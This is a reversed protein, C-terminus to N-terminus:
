NRGSERMAGGLISTLNNSDCNAGTFLEGASIFVLILLNMSCQPGTDFFFYLELRRM